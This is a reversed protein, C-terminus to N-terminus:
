VVIMGNVVVSKNITRVLLRNTNCLASHYNAIEYACTCSNDSLM